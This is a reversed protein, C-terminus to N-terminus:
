IQLSISDAGCASRVAYSTIIGAGGYMEYLTLSSLVRM